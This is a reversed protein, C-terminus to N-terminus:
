TGTNGTSNSTLIGVKMALFTGVAISDGWYQSAFSGGVSISIIDVGVAIANDFGVLIDSDYCGFSWCVKYVVIRASPVGGRSVGEGLGLPNAGSITAGAVTSTTHTQHGDTDQPSYDINEAKIESEDSEPSLYFKAGIIKNCM